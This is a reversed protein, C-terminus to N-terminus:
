RSLRARQPHRGQNGIISTADADEGHGWGRGTPLRQTGRRQGHKLRRYYRNAASAYLRFWRYDTSEVTTECSTLPWPCVVISGIGASCREARAYDEIGAILGLWRDGVRGWRPPPPAGCAVIVCLKRWETAHLETVAAAEIIGRRLREGSAPSPESPCIALWLLAEGALVSNEVPAFSGVDGRRMAQRIWERVHPWLEAVRAPDVCVLQCRDM